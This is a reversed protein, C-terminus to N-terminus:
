SANGLLCHIEPEIHPWVILPSSTPGGVGPNRSSQEALPTVAALQLLYFYLVAFYRQVTFLYIYKLGHESSSSLFM